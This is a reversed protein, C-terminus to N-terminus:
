ADGRKEQDVDYRFGMQKPPTAGGQRTTVIPSGGHVLGYIILRGIYIGDVAHYEDASRAPHYGRKRRIGCGVGGISQKLSRRLGLALRDLHPRLRDASSAGAWPRIALCGGVMM